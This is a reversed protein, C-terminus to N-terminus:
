KEIERIKLNRWSVSFPGRDGVGHVQLGILGKPHSSYIKEDVLDSVQEGNVWVQIRPGEALVRYHNWKGDKFHKHPKRKDEPTMWGSVAEAYLYGAEAGNAGSAEIEVQPGNVRGGHEDGKLSSRIQVGSNLKDDCKVEFTLEFDGFHKKTCLFTNPSGAKTTGTIVGDKLEYTATGSKIEFADLSKGDFLPKLGKADDDLNNQIWKALTGSGQGYGGPLERIDRTQVAPPEGWHVPFEKEGVAGFASLSASAITVLLTLTPKMM